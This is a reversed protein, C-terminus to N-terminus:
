VDNVEIVDNPLGVMRGCYVGYSKECPGEKIQYLPTLTKETTVAAVHVNCVTPLKEGLNTIENFHTAFLTFCHIEKALHRTILFFVTTTTKTFNILKSQLQM